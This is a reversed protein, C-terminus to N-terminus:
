STPKQVAPDPQYKDDKLLLSIRRGHIGGSENVLDFYALSGQQLKKGLPSSPGTQVNSVGIVIPPLDARPSSEGTVGAWGGAMGLFLLAVCLVGAVAAMKKKKMKKKM